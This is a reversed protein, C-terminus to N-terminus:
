LIFFTSIYEGLVIYTIFCGVFYIIFNLVLKVPGKVLGKINGSIIDHGLFIVVITLFSYIFFPDFIDRIMDVKNLGFPLKDAFTFVNAPIIQDLLRGLFVMVLGFWVIKLIAKM